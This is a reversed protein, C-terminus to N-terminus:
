ETVAYHARSRIDKSSAGVMLEFEGPEVVFKHQNVDYIAMRDVPVEKTVTQKQGAELHIRDFAVLKQNPQKVSCVKEHAYFQM